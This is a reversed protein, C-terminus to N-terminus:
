GSGESNGGILIVGIVILRKGGGSQWSLVLASAIVAAGGMLQVPTLTEGLVFYAMAYTFLPSARFLPAM